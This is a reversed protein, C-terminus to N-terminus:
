QEIEPFIKSLFTRTMEKTIHYESSTDIVILERNAMKIKVVKQKSLKKPKANLVRSSNLMNQSHTVVRLNTIKNNTYCRDIHDIELGAPVPGNFAEWVLKHVLCSTQKDNVKIGVLHYGHIPRTLGVKLIRNYRLSHINGLEDAAYDSNVLLTKLM